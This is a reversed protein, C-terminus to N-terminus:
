ENKKPKATCCFPAHGINGCKPCLVKGIYMECLKNNNEKASDCDKRDCRDCVGEVKNPMARNKSSSRSSSSSRSDNSQSRSRGPTQDRRNNSNRDPKRSRNYQNYQNDYGTAYVEDQTSVKKIYRFMYIKRLEALKMYEVKDSIQLLLSEHDTKSIGNVVISVIQPESMNLGRADKTVRELFDHNSEDPRIRASQLKAIAQTKEIYTRGFKEKLATTMQELTDELGFDCEELWSKARGKMHTRFTFRGDMGTIIIYEHFLKLWRTVPTKGDYEELNYKNSAVAHALLQTDSMNLRPNSLNSFDPTNYSSNAQQSPLAAPTQSFSHYSSSAAQAPPTYSPATATQNIFSPATAPQTIFSPAATAQTQSATAAAQAAQISDEAQKKYYEMQKKLELAHQQRLNDIQHQWTTRESDFKTEIKSLKNKQKEMLDSIYRNARDDHTQLATNMQQLQNELSAIRQNAAVRQNEMADIQANMADPLQQYAPPAMMTSQAAPPPMGSIIPSRTEAPIMTVDMQDSDNDTDTPLAVNVPDPATATTRKTPSKPQSLKIEGERSKSRTIAGEKKSMTVTLPSAFKDTTDYFETSDSSDSM